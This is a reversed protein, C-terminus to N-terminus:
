RHMPLLFHIGDITEARDFAMHTSLADFRTKLHPDVHRLRDISMASRISETLNSSNRGAGMALRRFNACM